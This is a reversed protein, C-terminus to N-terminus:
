SWLTGTIIIGGIKYYTEDDNLKVDTPTMSEVALDGAYRIKKYNKEIIERLVRSYRLAKRNLNNQTFDNIWIVDFFIGIKRSTSPGASNAEIGALGYYIVPDANLIEDDLNDIYNSSDVAVLTISDNKETNIEAIKAPLNSIIMEKLDYLFTEEDYKSM